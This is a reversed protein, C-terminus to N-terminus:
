VYRESDIQICMVALERNRHSRSISEKDIGVADNVCGVGITFAKSQLAEFIDEICIHFGRQRFKFRCDEFRQILISFFSQRM